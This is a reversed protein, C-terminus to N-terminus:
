PTMAARRISGSRASEGGLEFARKRRPAPKSRGERLRRERGADLVKLTFGNLRKGLDGDTRNYIVISEIPLEAGSISKGGRTTAHEGRHADPRRRRLQREHQRRHGREADGGHATNKQSAKGQRAVNRGDSYVEVEALTLTRQKGPLEIRVYRGPRRRARSPRRGASPPLGDLLPEVKPYLSARLGPDRILPM